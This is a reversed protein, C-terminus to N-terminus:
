AFRQSGDDEVAEVCINRIVEILAEIQNGTKGLLDIDRTPRYDSLGWAQFLLAGKVVFRSRYASKSLRYLFRDITYYQLIEDYPRGRSRSLNVLRTQVSAPVNKVSRDKM